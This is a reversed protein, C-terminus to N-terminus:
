MKEDVDSEMERFIKTMKRHIVMSEVFGPTLTVFGEGSARAKIACLEAWAVAFCFGFIGRLSDEKYAYSAAIRRVECDSFMALGTPMQRSYSETVTRINEQEEGIGLKNKWRQEYRPQTSYPGMNNRAKIFFERFSKVHSKIVELEDHLQPHRHIRREADQLPQILDEDPEYSSNCRDRMEILSKKYKKTEYDAVEHLVDLIFIHDVRRSALPLRRGNSGNEETKSPFCKPPERDWARKDARFVDERVVLGSKVADLCQTFMHGLRSTIPHDLGHVYAANRYFMNYVGLQNPAINQLMAETLQPVIDKKSLEAQAKIDRLFVKSKHFNNREFDADPDAFEKHSNQFPTTIAEDWIMVVTDGDYDGGSLLSALSRDGKTSFVIVDYYGRSWLDHNNVAVVKNIKERILYKFALIEQSLTCM